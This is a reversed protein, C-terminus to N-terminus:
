RTAPQRACVTPDMTPSDIGAAPVNPATVRRWCRAAGVTAAAGLLALVGVAAATGILAPGWGAIAYTLLFAAHSTSFQATFVDDRDADTHDRITRPITTGIMSTAVGLVVWTGFLATPQPGTYSWATTIALGTTALAAGAVMVRMPGFRRLMMPVAFTTALSGIGFAALALAVATDGAGLDGRVYGVTGVLVIATAAAVAVDIWLLGRLSRRSLMIRIGRLIRDAVTGTDDPLAPPDSRDLRRLGSGAVLLASAAFGAATFAFLASSPLVLLAVGALLPSTLAELDYAIRSASVAVTYQDRDPVVRAIAASFTPTFTASATQLAFILLYIQWTGTVWPLCAATGVRVVDAGILVGTAPLRTVLARMLPAMAVYAVMKIALATGLVQAADTGALDYALLGLAVTMLGTGALSIVQAPYLRTFVPNRLLPHM